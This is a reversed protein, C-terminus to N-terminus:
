EKAGLKRLLAATDPQAGDRAGRRRASALALPTQGRENKVDLRAGREALLQVITNLQGSAAVHIATDGTRNAAQIDAGLDLLLKVAELGQSEGAPSVQQRSAALVGQRRRDSSAAAILPTTGDKAALRVDAGSAVLARIMDVSAYNAALVLPTAGVLSAPLFFDASSRRVPTGNATQINPNAGHALSAKMLDLDGRLVAAHLM